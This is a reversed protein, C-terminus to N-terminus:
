FDLLQKVPSNKTIKSGKFGVSVNLSFLLSFEIEELM